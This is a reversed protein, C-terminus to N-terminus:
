VYDAQTESWALPGPTTGYDDRIAQWITNYWDQLRKMAGSDDYMIGAGAAWKARKWADGMLDQVVNLTALQLDDSNASMYRDIEEDSFVSHYYVATGVASNASPVGNLAVLGYNFNWSATLNGFPSVLTASGAESQGTGSAIPFGGLQFASAVGDGTPVEVERHHLDGISRRLAQAESIGM